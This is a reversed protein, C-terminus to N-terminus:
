SRSRVPRTIAQRDITQGAEQVSGDPDLLMPAAVGVEHDAVCHLLPEAWGPRVIVDPNLLCLVTGRAHAIGLENGGGFGLNTASTILRVGSTGLRLRLSTPMRGAGANDVVIVEHPTSTLTAEVAALCEEIIPGTTYTVTVISLLPETCEPM